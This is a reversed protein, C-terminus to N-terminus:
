TIGHKQFIKILRESMMPIGQPNKGYMFIELNNKAEKYFIYYPHFHLVKLPKTAEDYSFKPGRQGFNYTINLRKYRKRSLLKGRTIDTLAKEDARNRPTIFNNWFIFFDEASPKFFFSGCNWQPKYGYSTFALDRAGLELESERIADNEYADFDHYWYLDDFLMKNKLLYVIVPIKNTRDPAYCLNPIVTSKVGNYEFVFNTFLLIDEPKWGIDLSNDIQLKALRGAEKGFRGDDRTYILLNKMVM